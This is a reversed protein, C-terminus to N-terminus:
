RRASLSDEAQAVEDETPARRAQERYIKELANRFELSKDVYFRRRLARFSYIFGGRELLALHWQVEGYAMNFVKEIERPWSYGRQQIYEYIAKRRKNSLFDLPRTFRSYLPACLAALKRAVEERMLVLYIFVALPLLPFYMVGFQVVVPTDAAIRAYISFDRVLLTVDAVGNVVVVVKHVFGPIWTGVYVEHVGALVYM